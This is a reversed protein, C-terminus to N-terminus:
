AWTERMAPPNKVPRAVLSAWKIYLLKDLSGLHHLPFSDVQWHLLYLNLGQTLFIGQFLFHCNVGTNRDPFDWAYLLRAPCLGYPLLSDSVVSRSFVVLKSLEGYTPLGKELIM